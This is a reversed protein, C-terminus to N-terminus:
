NATRAVVLPLARQDGGRRANATKPPRVAQGCQPNSHRARQPRTCGELRSNRLDPDGVESLALDSLAAPHPLYAARVIATPTDPGFRTLRGTCDIEVHRVTTYCLSRESASPNALCRANQFVIFRTRCVNNGDSVIPLDQWWVTQTQSDPPMGGSQIM